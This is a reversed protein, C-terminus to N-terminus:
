PDRQPDQDADTSEEPHLVPQGALEPAFKAVRALWTERDEDSRSEGLAYTEDWAVEPAFYPHLHQVVSGTAHVWVERLKAVTVLEDDCHWHHYAESCVTGPGDWSAGRERAYSTRVFSHVSHEGRRVRPNALDNTGIVCAKTGVACALALSAWDDHFGVDDGVLFMWETDIMDLACNVKQPFTGPPDVAVRRTSWPWGRMAVETWADDSAADDENYIVIVGDVLSRTSLAGALSEAFPKANQPRGLVPVVVTIPKM